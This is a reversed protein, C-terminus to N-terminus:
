ANEKEREEKRLPLAEPAYAGSARGSRATLPRAAKSLAARGKKHVKGSLIGFCGSQAPFAGM